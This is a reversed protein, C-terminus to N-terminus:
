RNERQHKSIGKPEDHKTISGARSEQSLMAPLVGTAIVDLDSPACTGPSSYPGRGDVKEEAMANAKNEVWAVAETVATKVGKAVEGLAPIKSLKAQSMAAQDNDM